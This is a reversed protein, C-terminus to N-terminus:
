IVRFISSYGTYAYIEGGWIWKYNGEHVIRYVGRPTDKSIRWVITVKSNSLGDREWHYETDWDLDKRYTQWEGNQWHEVKLFSGGIRSDNKPHAGWFVVQVREGRRYTPKVDEEVDGFLKGSPATDFVVGTQLTIQFGSLDPPVPGVPVQQGQVMAKTINAMIQQIANAQWPGFLTSAGEYRQVQYEENTTVYQAYANALTSIVIHPRLPGLSQGGAITKMVTNSNAQMVDAITERLKRGVMTTLEFPVAAIVLQGIKIVQFPLINPTWPYPHMTGTELVIPKAGQCTTQRSRCVFYSIEETINDCTIGQRGIGEGDQTGALLSVGIAAPCTKRMQGDTFQPRITVKDMAVYTHRYDIAGKILEEARGFLEKAKEYQPRGAAEVDQLGLEGEGGEHGYPNPSVDGANSQAFAAVFDGPRYNSGLDKEFLYEALGKNDGNILLNKNNMSVGHLPFWNIIGIPKGELGDIRLLTMEKDVNDKYKDRLAKPNQLYASPSRNFSIGDLAGTVIRIQAPRMNESAFVIAKVIGDIITNFNSRSFGLTSLNYLTYTSYGGPGSHQHTATLLVNEDSYTDGLEKKLKLIVQQKIGQFLQGLDANVFVIRKHDCPSEIVFARAWLRQYIGATKQRVMAYGMMGVEAAPGTIDYIGTGVNFITNTQCANNNPNQTPAAIAELTMLFFFIFSFIIRM